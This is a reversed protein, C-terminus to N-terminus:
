AHLFFASSWMDIDCPVSVPENSFAANIVRVKDTADSLRVDEEACKATNPLPELAILKRADHLVFTYPWTALAQRLTLLTGGGLGQLVEPVFYQGAVFVGM